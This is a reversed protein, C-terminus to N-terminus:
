CISNCSKEKGNPYEFFNGNFDFNFQAYNKSMNAVFVLTDKQGARQFSFIQNEVGYNMTVKPTLSFFSAQNKGVTLADSTSKLSGLDKLLDM